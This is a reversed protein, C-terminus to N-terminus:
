EEHYDSSNYAGGMGQRTYSPCLNNQEMIDDRLEQNRKEINLVRKFANTTVTTYYAFPNDGKAENFQLGVQSLQLLAQGRMEENYTYGRWNGRSAYRDVLTIFMDALTRTMTGHDKSFEGDELSGIWHSKGVIYPTNEPTVKYHFFPPFNARIFLMNDTIDIDDYPNYIVSDADMQRMAAKRSKADDVPVHESTSVRFIVDDRCLQDLPINFDEIKRRPKYSNVHLDYQIRGLRVSRGELAQQITEENILDASTLHLDYEADEPSRFVCYTMKSKHIEKLIDINNLYNVRAM